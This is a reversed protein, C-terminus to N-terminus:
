RSFVVALASAVVLLATATLIALPSRVFYSPAIACAVLIAVFIVATPVQKTAPQDLDTVMRRSFVPNRPRRTQSVDM